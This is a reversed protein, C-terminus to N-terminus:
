LKRENLINIIRKAITPNIRNVLVLDEPIADNLDEIKKYGASVLNEARVRDIDFMDMYLKVTEDERGATVDSM